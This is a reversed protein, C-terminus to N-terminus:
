LLHGFKLMFMDYYKIDEFVLRGGHFYTHYRQCFATRSDDYESFMIFALEPTVIIEQSM